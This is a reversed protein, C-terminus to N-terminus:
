PSVRTRLIYPGGAAVIEKRLDTMQRLVMSQYETWNVTKGDISYTPKPQNNTGLRDLTLQKLIAAYGDYASQLDDVAAM